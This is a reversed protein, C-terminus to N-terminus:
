RRWLLNLIARIPWGAPAEYAPAVVARIAELPINDAPPGDPRGAPVDDAAPPADNAAAAAPTGARRCCRWLRWTSVVYVVRCGLGVIATTPHLIFGLAAFFISKRWGQAEVAAVVFFFAMPASFVMNWIRLGWEWYEEMPRGQLWTWLGEELKAEKREEEEMGLLKDELRALRAQVDALRSNISNLLQITGPVM